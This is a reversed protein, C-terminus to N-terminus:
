IGATLLEPIFNNSKVLNEHAPIIRLNEHVHLGMVLKGNLPIIHDVHYNIGTTVTMKRAKKYIERIKAKDAWPPTVKRLHHRMGQAKLKVKEPNLKRWLNTDERYKEANQWYREKRIEKMKEIHNFYFKQNEKVHNEPNNKEQKIRLEKSCEKCQPRIGIRRDKRSYYDEFFKDEGCVSCIKHQEMTTQKVQPTRMM